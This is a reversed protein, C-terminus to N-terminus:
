KSQEKFLIWCFVNQDHGLGLRLKNFILGSISPSLHLSITHKESILIMSVPNCGSQLSHDHGGGGRYSPLDVEISIWNSVSYNEWLGYLFTFIWHWWKLLWWMCKPPILGILINLLYIQWNNSLMWCFLLMLQWLYNRTIM